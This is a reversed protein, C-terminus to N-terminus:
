KGIWKTVTHALLQLFPIGIIFLVFGPISITNKKYFFLTSILFLGFMMLFIAFLRAEFGILTPILIGKSNGSELIPIAVLIAIIGTISLIKNATNLYVKM